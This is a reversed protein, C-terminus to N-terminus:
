LFCWFISRRPAISMGPSGAGLLIEYTITRIEDAITIKINYVNLLEFGDVGGTGADGTITSSFSINGGSITPTITIENGYNAENSKKFQYVCKTIGNTADGFSNNWFTGAITLTTEKSVGGTRTATASSIVPNTYDKWTAASKTVATSNGRSDIAYVTFSRNVINSLSLTVNSSSSYNAEVAKNGCVLRYRSMSAGNKATAKNATSVTVQLTNYNNIFISSDGTLLLSEAKTDELTYNSFTPNSNVVYMTKDVWSWWVETGNLITAVVYRVTLTNSSSCKSYLLNREATTLSFTYGGGTGTYGNRSIISGGFELRLNCTLGGPNSFEMYPNQNSNFDNALTVNAQRPINTLGVTGSVSINGPMYSAGTASISASCAITKTGDNNHGITKSGSAILLTSNKGISRYENSWYVEGDVNVSAPFSWSSFNWGGSILYLAWSVSSTNSSIDYSDENVVLRLTYTYGYSTGSGTGEFTAM